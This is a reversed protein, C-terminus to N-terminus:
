KLKVPTECTPCVKKLQFWKKICTYHFVCDCELTINKKSDIDELCIPCRCEKIKKHVPEADESQSRKRKSMKRLARKEEKKMRVPEPHKYESRDAATKMAQEDTMRIMIYIDKNDTEKGYLERIYDVVRDDRPLCKFEDLQSYIFREIRDMAHYRYVLTPVKYTLRIYHHM